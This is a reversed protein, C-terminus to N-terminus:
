ATASGGVACLMVTAVMAPRSGQIALALACAWLAYLTAGLVLVLAQYATLTPSLPGFLDFHWDLIVHGLSFAIALTHVPLWRKSLQRSVKM